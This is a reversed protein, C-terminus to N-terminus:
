DAAPEDTDNADAPEKAPPTSSPQKAPEAPDLEVGLAEALENEQAIEELVDEFDIGQEALLRTRSTLKAAVAGAQANMEKEPDIWTWRKGQWVVQAFRPDTHWFAPLAGNMAGMALWARFIRDCVQDVYLSQLTMWHDREELLFIRGTSYNVGGPDNAFSHYSQGVGAAAGRLCTRIFPEIAQDPFAPDWGQLQMGEPLTWYQGPSTDDMLNGASDTGTALTSNTQGDPTTLVAVKSAGVRANVVAAEEFGGLHWLRLMSAHLMPIGRAQEPWHPIFAHIIQDAPVRETERNPQVGFGMGQEGPNRTFIHYALPRGHVDMEIGCKIARGNALQENKDTDLREIDLNQLRIGYKGELPHIRMLVEGDTGLQHLNARHFQHMSMKGAIDCEIGRCFDAWAAEMKKNTALDLKGRPMRVRARMDFPCPGGVNNIVSTIFRQAYADSRVLSRSRARLTRGEFRIWRNVAGPDTTWSNTLRGISAGAFAASRRARKPQVGFARRIRELLTM